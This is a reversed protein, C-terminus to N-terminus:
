DCLGDERLMKKNIAIAARVGEGMAAAVQLVDRSADGAVYVGAVSTECTLPDCRVSGNEASECGLQRWLDSAPYCGTSFFLGVRSTTHGQEFAIATLSRDVGLLAAIPQEIVQIGRADMDRREREALAAGDTCLVIDNSWLLMMRALDAGKKGKGYAAVPRDRYEYADCYLCHHVSHGYFNELGRLEPLEDVLGTALLVNKAIGSRSATRFSFGRWEKVISTVREDLRRVNSYRSLTTNALARYEEPPLGEGIVLGHIATSSRNRPKGDDCLM